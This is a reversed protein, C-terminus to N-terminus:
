VNFRLFESVPRRPSRAFERERLAPSLREPDGPYGAAIMTLPEVNPDGILEAAALADFGGMPHTALGLAHAQLMLALNAAGLDHGAHRNLSGNREYFRAAGSLILVPAERAWHNGGLLLTQLRERFDPNADTGAWYRWPQENYSSPARRAAEFLTLLVAEDVPRPDFAIASYRGSLVPLVPSAEGAREEAQVAPLELVSM